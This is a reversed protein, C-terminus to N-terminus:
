YRIGFRNNMGLLMRGAPRLMERWAELVQRPDPEQELNEISIIYDFWERHEQRWKADCTRGVAARTVRLSREELMRTLAPAGQRSVADEACGPLVEGAGAACAAQGAGPLLGGAGPEGVIYLVAAGPRFDYWLLLGKQIEGILEESCTM